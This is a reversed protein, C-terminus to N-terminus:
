KQSVKVSKLLVGELRSMQLYLWSLVSRIEYLSYKATWTSLHKKM